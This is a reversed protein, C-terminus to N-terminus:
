GTSPIGYRAWRPDNLTLISSTPPKYTDQTPPAVVPVQPMESSERNSAIVNRAFRAMRRRNTVGIALELGRKRDELDKIISDAGMEPFLYESQQPLKGSKADDITKQIKELSTEIRKQRREYAEHLKRKYNEM